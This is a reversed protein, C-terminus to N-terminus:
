RQERSNHDLEVPGQQWNGMGLAGQQPGSVAHAGGGAWNMTGHVETTSPSGGPSMQNTIGHGSVPAGPNGMTADVEAPVGHLANGPIGPNGMTADVEVVTPSPPPKYYSQPPGSVSPQSSLLTTNTSSFRPDPSGPQPSLASVISPAYTSATQQSQIPIETVQPQQEQQPVSQYNGFAKPPTQQVPEQMPPPVYAPPRAAAKKDRRKQRIICILIIVALV